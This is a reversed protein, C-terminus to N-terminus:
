KLRWCNPDKLEVPRTKPAPHPRSSLSTVGMPNRHPRMRVRPIALPAGPRGLGPVRHWPPGRKPPVGRGERLVLALGAPHVGGRHGNGKGGRQHMLIQKLLDRSGDVM